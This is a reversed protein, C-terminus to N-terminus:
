HYIGCKGGALGVMKEVLGCEKCGPTGAPAEEMDMITKARRLLPPIMGRDLEIPLTTARFPMQFGANNVLADLGDNVECEPPECYVLGLNTVQGLSISESILAYGVLQVQYMPLLGDQHDSFRATKLDLIALRNRPCGVMLDPVGTLVIDTEKDRMWFRSHHPTPLPRANSWRGSIWPPLHGHNEYFAM